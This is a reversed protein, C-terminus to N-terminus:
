SYKRILHKIYDEKLEEDTPAKGDKWGIVGTMAEAPPIAALRLRRQEETEELPAFAGESLEQRIQARLAQKEEDSLLEPEEHSEKDHNLVGLARFLTSDPMPKFKGSPSDADKPVRKRPTKEMIQQLAKYLAKQEAPPMRKFQSLFEAQTMGISRKDM